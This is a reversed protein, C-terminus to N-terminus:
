IKDASRQILKSLKCNSMCVVVCSALIFVCSVAFFSFTSKLLRVASVQSPAAPNEWEGLKNM